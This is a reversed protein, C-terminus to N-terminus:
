PELVVRFRAENNEMREYAEEVEALPYTEVTPTIERTASFELTDQAERPHGSSWGSVSGRRSQAVRM